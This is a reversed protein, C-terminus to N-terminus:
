EDSDRMELRIRRGDSVLFANPLPIIPLPILLLTTVIIGRGFMGRRRRGQKSFRCAPLFIPAFFILFFPNKKGGNKKGKENRQQGEARQKTGGARRRSILAPEDPQVIQRSEVSVAALLPITRGEGIMELRGQRPIFQHGRPIDRRRGVGHQLDLRAPNKGVMLGLKVSQANPGGVTLRAM